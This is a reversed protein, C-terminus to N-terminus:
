RRIRRLAPMPVGLVAAVGFYTLGFVGLVLVARAAPALSGVSAYLGAFLQIRVLWGLAAGALAATWLKALRGAGVGTAGIRRALTHRLLVFEVWGAIGASATLGAAGWRAPVGLIPPLVLAFLYGLGIVLAVRILAFRLPTRTDGLAYYAASYLRGLTSALLGVASGALIGWVYQADEPRFRGTQLLAAAIVDGFAVFAVASPVVFFAIRRLGPTLRERLAAGRDEHAAAEGSMAPLEAASISMGFLSVPLTYLVQANTLGTVAGTPLFSALWTDVYASVQVVGRSVFVPVFNRVVTRVDATLAMRAADTQQEASPHRFVSIVAPLQIGFQLASGVVSGMALVIALDDLPRGPGFMWLTVIMAANWMVPATYSIFFKRHSNLVGLCWASIVLLGAGPFLIRVLTTTLARKPGAFGYAIVDILYPAFAVGILVICSTALSLLGFVTRAVRDAEDEKDQALLRAYVPIFSASLAGEGFLNQLLNPIRFAANFADAADSQVGFYHGFVRLRVLGTLRSLLIGAAVLAASRSTTSPSSPPPM